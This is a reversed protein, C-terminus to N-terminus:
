DILPPPDNEQGASPFLGAPPRYHRKDNQVMLGLTDTAMWNGCGSNAGFAMAHAVPRFRPSDELEGSALLRDWEEGAMREVERAEKPDLGNNNLDGTLKILIEPIREVYDRVTRASDHNGRFGPMRLKLANWMMGLVAFRVYEERNIRHTPQYGKGGNAGGGYSKMFTNAFVRVDDFNQNYSYIKRANDALMAITSDEILFQNWPDVSALQEMLQCRWAINAACDSAFADREKRLRKVEADLRIIEDNLDQALRSMENARQNAFMADVSDALSM